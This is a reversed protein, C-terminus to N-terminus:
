DERFEGSRPRPSPPDWRFAPLLEAAEVGLAGALRLLTDLFPLSKGAELHGIQTRHLDSLDALDEQTLGANKRAASLKHGFAAAVADRGITVARITATM